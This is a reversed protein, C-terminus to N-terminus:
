RGVGGLGGGLIDVGDEDEGLPVLELGEVELGDVGAHLLGGEEEVAAVDEIQGAETGQAEAGM